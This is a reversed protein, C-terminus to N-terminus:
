GGRSWTPGCSTKKLTKRLTEHSIAEVIGLEVAKEALLRMSWRDRGEPAQSCALAILHAEARGDLSRKYERDPMSRELSADLGQRFFRERVRAVTATSTELTQAVQRDLPAPGEGSHEGRDTKLLIRARNLM